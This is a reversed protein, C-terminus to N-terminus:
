EGPRHDAPRQPLTRILILAYLAVIALRSASWLIRNGATLGATNAFAGTCNIAAHTVICPLLSGGRYFLIVFLFGIGVAGAVQCLNAVLEMGSGDVQHLLHGLGFTVSSIVAAKKVGEGTLALFLLGRFITEELFGVCLMQVMYCATDAPPFNVAVGNWLNHSALVLLPIYWLFRRAPLSPKCLGYRTLLGNKIIWRLLAATLALSLLAHASYTIGIRDSLPNALIQFVCYVAIWVLAFSLESKQYLTKM